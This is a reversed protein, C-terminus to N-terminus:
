GGCLGLRLLEERSRAVRSSRGARSQASAGEGGCRGGRADFAGTIGGGVNGVASSLGRHRIVGSSVISRTAGCARLTRAGISSGTRNKEELSVSGASLPQVGGTSTPAAAVPAAVVPEATRRRDDADAACAPSRHG